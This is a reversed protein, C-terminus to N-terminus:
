IGNNKEKLRNEWRRDCAKSFSAIENDVKIEGWGFRTKLEDRFALSPLHRKWKMDWPVDDFDFWVDEYYDNFLVDMSENHEAIRHALLDSLDLRTNSIERISKIMQWYEDVTDPLRIWGSFLDKVVPDKGPYIETIRVDGDYCPEPLLEVVVNRGYIEFEICM